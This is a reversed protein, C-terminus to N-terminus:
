PFKYHDYLHHKHSHYTQKSLEPAAPSGARSTKASPSGSRIVKSNSAANATVAAGVINSPSGSRNGQGGPGVRLKLKKAGKEGGSGADSMEAGTDVDSGNGPAPRKKSKSNTKGSKGVDSKTPASSPNEPTLRLTVVRGQPSESSSQPATSKSGNTQQTDSKKFKKQQHSIDPQIDPGPSGSRKLPKSKNDGPVKLLTTSSSTSTGSQPLPTSTGSAAASKLSKISDKAERVLEKEREKERRKEEEREKSAKEAAKKKEEEEKKMSEEEETDM